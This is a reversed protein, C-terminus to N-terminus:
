HPIRRKICQFSREATQHQWAALPMQCQKGCYLIIFYVTKLLEYEREKRPSSYSFHEGLMLSRMAAQCVKGESCPLWIFIADLSALFALFLRFM